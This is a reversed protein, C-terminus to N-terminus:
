WRVDVDDRLVKEFLQLYAVTMHGVDYLEAQARCNEPKFVDLAGNRIANVVGATNTALMGNTIYAGDPERKIIDYLGGNATALVPKGVANAEVAYIGFAELYHENDTCAILAKCRRLLDWKTENDVHGYYQVQGGSNACRNQIDNIYEYNVPHIDDGVVKMKWGTQLAVDINNHIGKEVSIRNLSLLFDESKATNPDFAPLEIGNHIYRVPCGFNNSLHQAHQSSVGLMRPFAVPPKIHKPGQPTGMIWGSMGHHSHIIKMNPFQRASLYPFGWWSNDWVIGQGEGFERELWAKYAMYMTQEDKPYWGTPGAGVVNLSGLKENTGERLVDFSGINPSENTTILTVENGQMSAARAFNWVVVEIGAYRGELPPSEIASTSIVAIKM